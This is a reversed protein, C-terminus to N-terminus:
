KAVLDTSDVLHATQMATTSLTQYLRWKITLQGRHYDTHKGLNQYKHEQEDNVAQKIEMLTQSLKQNHSYEAKLDQVM